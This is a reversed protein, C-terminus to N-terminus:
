EYVVDKAFNFWYESGYFDAEFASASTMLTALALLQQKSML